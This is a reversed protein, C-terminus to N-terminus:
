PQRESEPIHIVTLACCDWARSGRSVNWTIYLKDGKPDVASSYTGRLTCGYKDRYYPHLFALVKKQKTRVNFQVVPSGDAESGGHAGPVYYLYGGNPDADISAVYGQSGVAATGLKQVEETKTNFAWLTPDQRGQGSSVTYIFGQPTEESAARLGITSATEVPPGGKDPDYRMLAGAGANGPV